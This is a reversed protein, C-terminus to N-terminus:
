DWFGDTFRQQFPFDNRTINYLPHLPRNCDSPNPDHSPQHQQSAPTSGKGAQSVNVSLFKPALMVTVHGSRIPVHSHSCYATFPIWKTLLLAWFRIRNFVVVFSKRRYQLHKYQVQRGSSIMMWLDLGTPWSSDRSPSSCIIQCQNTMWPIWRGGKELDRIM